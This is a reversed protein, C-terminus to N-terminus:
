IVMNRRMVFQMFKRVPGVEFNTVAVTSFHLKGNFNKASIWFKIKQASLQISLM